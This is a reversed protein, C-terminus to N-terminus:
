IVFSNVYNERYILSGTENCDVFGSWVPWAWGQLQIPNYQMEDIQQQDNFGAMSCM